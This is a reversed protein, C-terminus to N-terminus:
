FCTNLRGGSFWRYFPPRSDDRVREWPEVWDVAGAAEAWFGEPEDLSRRYIDDFRGMTVRGREDNRGIAVVGGTTGDHGRKGPYGAGRTARSNDDLPTRPSGHTVWSLRGVRERRFSGLAHQSCGGCCPLPM